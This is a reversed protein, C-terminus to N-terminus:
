TFVWLFPDLGMVACFKERGIEFVAAAMGGPPLVVAASVLGLARVPGYEDECQIVGLYETHRVTTVTEV